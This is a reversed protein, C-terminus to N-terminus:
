FISSRKVYPTQNMYMCIWGAETKGWISLTLYKIDTTEVIVKEPLTIRKQTNLGPKERVSLRYLSEYYGIEMVPLNLKSM